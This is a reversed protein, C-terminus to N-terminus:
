MSALLGEFALAAEGFDNYGLIQAEERMYYWNQGPESGSSKM